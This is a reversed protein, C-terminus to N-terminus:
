AYALAGEELLEEGHVRVGEGQGDAVGGAGRPRALLVADVVVEHRVGPELLQDRLVAEHLVRLEAAVAVAGALARDALLALLALHHEQVDLHLADLLDLAAVDGRAEDEDRRGALLLELPPQPAAAGLLLLADLLPQGLSLVDKPGRKRPGGRM